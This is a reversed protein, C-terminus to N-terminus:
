TVCALTGHGTGPRKVVGGPLLLRNPWQVGPRGYRPDTVIWLAKPSAVRDVVSL